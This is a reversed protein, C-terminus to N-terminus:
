WELCHIATTRVPKDNYCVSIAKDPTAGTPISIACTASNSVATAPSDCSSGPIVLKTGELGGVDGSLTHQLQTRCSPAVCRPDAAWQLTLQAAAQQASPWSSTRVRPRVTSVPGSRAAPGTRRSRSCRIWAAFGRSDHATREGCGTTGARETGGNLLAQLVVFSIPDGRAAQDHRPGHRPAMAYVSSRWAGRRLDSTGYQPLTPAQSRM